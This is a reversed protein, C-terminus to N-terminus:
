ISIKMWAILKQIRGEYSKGDQRLKSVEKELTDLRDLIQIIVDASEHYQEQAMQRSSKKRLAKLQSQNVKVAGSM